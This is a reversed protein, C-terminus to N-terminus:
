ILFGRESPPPIWVYYIRIEAFIRRRPPQIQSAKEGNGIRIGLHPYAEGFTAVLRDHNIVFYGLEEKIKRALTSKGARGAGAIIINKSQLHLVCKYRQYEANNYTKMFAETAFGCKQYFEVADADTEAKITTNYKQQIASIIAKGIGRKRANPAVAINYIEVWGSNVEIGCVGLVSNSELWGYLHLDERDRFEAAKKDMAESSKDVASEVILGRVAPNELETKIDCLM